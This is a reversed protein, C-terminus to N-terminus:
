FYPLCRSDTVPMLRRPLLLELGVEQITIAPYYNCLLPFTVWQVYANNEESFSDDTGKIFLGGPENVILVFRKQALDRYFQAFYDARQTMAMEMLLKKEYAQVLLIDDVTGFTLLQRHDIFLVEGTRGYRDVWTQVQSVAAEVLDQEPLAAPRKTRLTYSVPGAIALLVFIASVIPRNRRPKGQNFIQSLGTAMVLVISVLFMDLNHLNSGGGIKTSAIIGISLFVILAASIATIQTWHYRQKEKIILHLMFMLAPLSAWLFGLLIGPPYTSNPLLRDWLLPQQETFSQPNVLPPAMPSGFLIPLFLGGTLGALGLLIPRGFARKWDQQIGKRECDLLSISAAWIGPAFSWTWRSLHAYYAAVLVLLTALWTRSRQAFLVLIASLILPPYVPGQELFLYAWLTFFLNFYFPKGPKRNHKIASFGFVIPSLIWVIQYYFRFETITIEPFVFPLAWPFAMGPTIFAEITEEKLTNYRFHGFLTSYDYFRNGESWYQPFPYAHVQVMRATLAFLVGCVLINTGMFQILDIVGNALHSQWLTCLLTVLFALFFASWYGFQIGSTQPFLFIIAAPIFVLPISLGFILWRPMGSLLNKRNSGTPGRWAIALFFIWVVILSIIILKIVPYSGKELFRMDSKEIFLNLQFFEQLFLFTLFGLVLICILWFNRKQNLSIEHAAM